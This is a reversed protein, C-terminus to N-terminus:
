QQVIVPVIAFEGTQYLVHIYYLGSGSIHSEIIEVGEPWPQTHIIRGENNYILLKKPAIQV